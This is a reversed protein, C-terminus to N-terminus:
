ENYCILFLKNDGYVKPVGRSVAGRRRTVDYANTWKDDVPDPMTYFPRVEKAFTSTSM